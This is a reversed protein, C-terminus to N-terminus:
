RIRGRDDKAAIAELKALRMLRDIETLNVGFRVVLDDRCVGHVDHLFLVRRARIMRDIGSIQRGTRNATM